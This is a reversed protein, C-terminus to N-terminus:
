EEKEEHYRREKGTAARASILRVRDGRDTHVIALLRNRHSCGILVFRDEDESHLPDPITLSLRDEFATCAEDFTVGHKEVNLITKDPDWEFILAM